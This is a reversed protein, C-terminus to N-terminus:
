KPPCYRKAGAPPKYKPFAMARKRAESKAMDSVGRTIKLVTGEKIKNPDKILDKNADWLLPWLWPDNYIQPKASISWLDDCKEVTYTTPLMPAPAPKATVPKPAGGYVWKKLVPPPPPAKPAAKEVGCVSACGGLLGLALVVAMWPILRKLRKM